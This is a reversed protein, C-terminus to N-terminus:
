SIKKCILKKIGIEKAIILRHDGDRLRNEDLKGNVMRGIMLPERLGDEVVSHILKTHRTLLRNVCKFKRWRLYDAYDTKTNDFLIQKIFKKFSPLFKKSKMFQQYLTLDDVDKEVLNPNKFLISFHKGHEEIGGIEWESFLEKLYEMHCPSTHRKLTKYRGIVIVNMAKEILQRELAKNQEPTLWYHINAMLVTHSLWVEYSTVDADVIRVGKPDEQEWYRAQALFESEMEVGESTYGLDAMKRCYFGANCGLDTFRGEGKKVFPEIFNKWRKENTDNKRRQPMVVGNITAEQYWTGAPPQKGWPELNEVTKIGRKRGTFSNKTRIDLNPEKTSFTNMKYEDIVGFECAGALGKKPQYNSKIRQKLANILLEKNCILQSLAKREGGPKTYKGDIVFWHNTNYYFTDDREPKFDFHEKLYLCDHEALAVYKTKAKECGRLINKYMQQHSREKGNNSVKIVPLNMGDLNSEVKGKLESDVTDDTYYIITTKDWGPPNFKDVMWQFDRKQKDWKNDLWLGQSRKRAKNVQAQKLQYPFGKKEGKPVGGGRFWHAFWTNKNVVLRGGSLWAKCAVEIGQQGWSGHGEDCGDLEWFRDKHMFFCPGMCCMIDDIMKDNKEQKSGYYMARFPKDAHPSSIYMYDTRKHLKPTWDPTHLNYMRPIMTMGYECDRALIVDLGKDVACHADLKMIYKGKAIRAAQNISQRQGISEENHIFKVRDDNMHIQPEPVYGDLVAIIEIEGEANDLVNRMTRELYKENRAPIIVTLM